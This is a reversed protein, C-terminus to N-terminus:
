LHRDPHPGPETMSCCGLPTRDRVNRRFFLPASPAGIRWRADANGRWGAGHAPGGARDDFLVGAPNSGQRQPSFVISCLPISGRAEVTRNDREGLQAVAGHHNNSSIGVCSMTEEIIQVEEFLEVPIDIGDNFRFPLLFSFRAMRKM